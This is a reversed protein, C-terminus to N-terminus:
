LVNVYGGDKRAILSPLAKKKEKFCATKNYM